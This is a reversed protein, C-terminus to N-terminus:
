GAGPLTRAQGWRVAMGVVEGVVEADQPYRFIRVTEPSLPHPHLTLRGERLSCWGCHYGERTQVFYIPREYESRWEGGTVKNRSEDIQVFSGPPLIPYMTFDRTGIYGYSYNSHAFQGLLALPAVGWRKILPALPATGQSGFAPDFEVPVTASTLYDLGKVFHSNPPRLLSFDAVMANIDIGYWALLERLDRRYVAALSYFRYVSPVVGKNEIEHLRSTPLSFGNNGYKAAIKLSVEEVDRFSLGLQERLERLHQGADLRM